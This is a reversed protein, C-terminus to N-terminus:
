SRPGAPVLEGARRTKMGPTKAAGRHPECVVGLTDMLDFCMKQRDGGKDQRRAERALDNMSLIGALQGRGDVVPLRRVRTEKMLSMATELTADPSCSSVQRAMADEVRISALSRGKTYAAMCIDRDTIMGVVGGGNGVVPLDGCDGEWMLHAARDLSDAPRCSRVEHSMLEKVKM